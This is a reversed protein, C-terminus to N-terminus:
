VDLLTALVCSCARLAYHSDTRIGAPSRRYDAHFFTIADTVTRFRRVTVCPNNTLYNLFHKQLLHEYQRHDSLRSGFASNHAYTFADTTYHILKGMTYYDLLHWNKKQELHRAIRMMYRRANEYNHGRLFERRLSGKLYTAPNRDPEICGIVFARVYRKPAHHLYQEALYNALTKHSLARM